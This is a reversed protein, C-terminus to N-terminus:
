PKTSGPPTPLALSADKRQQVDVGQQSPRRAAPWAGYIDHLLELAVDLSKSHNQHDFAEGHIGIIPRLLDILPDLEPLLATNKSIYGLIVVVLSPSPPPIPNNSLHAELDKLLSKIETRLSAVETQSLVTMSDAAFKLAMSCADFFKHPENNEKEKQAYRV